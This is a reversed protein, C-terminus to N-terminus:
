FPLGLSQSLARDFPDTVGLLGYPQEGRLVAAAARRTTPEPDADAILGLRSRVWPDQAFRYLNRAANGRISAEPDGLAVLLVAKSRESTTYQMASVLEDRRPHVRASVIPEVRELVSSLDVHGLVCGCIAAVDASPHDLGDLCRAIVEPTASRWLRYLLDFSNTDWSGPHFIADVFRATVRPDELRALADVAESVVDESRARDAAALCTSYADPHGIRGLLRLARLTATFAPGATAELNVLRCLPLVAGPDRLTALVRAAGGFLAAQPDRALLALTPGLQPRLREVEDPPPRATAALEACISERASDRTNLLWERFEGHPSSYLPLELVLEREGAHRPLFLMTSSGIRIVRDIRALCAAAFAVEEEAAERPGLLEQLDELDRRLMSLHPLALPGVLEAGYLLAGPGEYGNAVELFTRYDTPLECGIRAQLADLTPPEAPPPRAARDLLKHERDGRGFAMAWRPTEILTRLEEDWGALFHEFFLHNKSSM